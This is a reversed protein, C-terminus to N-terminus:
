QSLAFDRDLVLHISYEPYKDSLKQKIEDYIKQEDPEDFSFIIDASIIKHEKDYYFGHLQIINKYESVIKILTSKIERSIEDDENQAYIGTTMITSYKEYSLVAIQREIKQIEKATMADAVEIHVSGINKDNGYNNIILDYVGKVEPINM